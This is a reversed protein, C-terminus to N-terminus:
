DKSVFRWRLGYATIWTGIQNEDWGAVIDDCFFVSEDKVILTAGYIDASYNDEPPRLNFATVGEFVMEISDCWQSDFVLTAQRIKAEPYMTKDPNVYAGSIYNATRLVSDHFNFVQKMFEEADKDSEVYNWGVMYSSTIMSEFISGKFNISNGNLLEALMAKNEFIWPYGFYEFFLVDSRVLKKFGSITKSVGTSKKYIWGKPYTPVITNVLVKPFLKGEDKDLYNFFKIYGGDDSPMHVLYKEYYGPNIRAYVESKFYKNTSKDYVRVKM